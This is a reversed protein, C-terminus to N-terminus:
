MSRITVLPFYFNVLFQYQCAPANVCASMKLVFHVYLNLIAYFVAQCMVQVIPLLSSAENMSKQFSDSTNPPSLSSRSMLRIPSGDDGGGGLDLETVLFDTSSRGEAEGRNVNSLDQLKEVHEELEVILTAQREALSTKEILDQNARDLQSALRDRELRLNTNDAQFPFPFCDYLVFIIRADSQNLWFM